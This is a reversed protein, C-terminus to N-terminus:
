ARDSSGVRGRREGGLRADQRDCRAAPRHGRRHREEDRGGELPRHDHLRWADPARHLARGRHHERRQQDLHGGPQDRQAGHGHVAAPRRARDVRHAAGRHRQNDPVRRRVRGARRPLHNTVTASGSLIRRTTATVTVTGPKAPATFTGGHDITGDSATWDFADDGENTRASFTQTKGVEVSIVSPTVILKPKCNDIAAQFEATLLGVGNAVGQGRGLLDLGDSRVEDCLRVGDDLVKQLGTECAGNALGQVRTFGQQAAVGGVYVAWECSNVGGSGDSDARIVDVGGIPVQTAELPTSEAPPVAEAVLATTLCLRAGQLEGAAGNVGFLRLDADMQLAQKLLEITQSGRPVNGGTVGTVGSCSYRKAEEILEDVVGGFVFACTPDATCLSTNGVFLV